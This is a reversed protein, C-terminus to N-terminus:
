SPPIRVLSSQHSERAHDNVPRLRQTLPREHAILVLAAGVVVWFWIGGQPGELYVDFSANVLFAAGYALFWVALRRSRDSSARLAVAILGIAVTMLLVFWAILGILGSRALITVHVSHPSRLSGDAEVQYGDADALNIGYGKGFWRYPGFVTYDVVDEWWDVRWNKTGDVDDVGTSQVTSLLRGVIGAVSISRGRETELEFQFGAALVLAVVGIVLPKGFRSAPRFLVVLAMAALVSVMGGRSESVMAFSLWWLVWVMWEVLPSVLGRLSQRGLGLLVFAAIGALHVGVDGTKLLLIPVPAHAHEPVLDPALRQINMLLPVFLLFWPLIAAYRREAAELTRADALSLIAVAFISYAWLVGDRLADIGFEGLFPITSAAGVLQHALVAVTAGVRLFRSLRGAALMAVVVVAFVVEGIFVPPLGVYAFGRGGFAYGILLVTLGVGAVSPLRTRFYAVIAALLCSTALATAAVSAETLM